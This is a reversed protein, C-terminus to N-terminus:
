PRQVLPTGWEDAGGEVDDAHDDPEFEGEMAPPPAPPESGPIPRADPKDPTDLLHRVGLADALPEVAWGSSQLDRLSLALGVAVAPLMQVARRKAAVMERPTLRVAQARAHADPAPDPLPDGLAGEVRVTWEPHPNDKCDCVMDHVTNTLEDQGKYTTTDWVPSGDDERAELLMALAKDASRCLGACRILEAGLAAADEQQLVVELGGVALVTKSGHLLHTGMPSVLGVNLRYQKRGDRVRKGTAQWEADFKQEDIKPDDM